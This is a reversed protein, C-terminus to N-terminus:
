PKKPPEIRVAQDYLGIAGLVGAASIVWEAYGGCDPCVGASELAWAAGAAAALGAAILTKRGALWWYTAQARPGYKGEAIGKVFLPLIKLVVTRRLKRALWPIV